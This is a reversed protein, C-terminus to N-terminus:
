SETNGIHEVHLSVGIMKDDEENVVYRSDVKYPLVALIHSESVVVPTISKEINALKLDGFLKKLKKRRGDMGPPFFFDGPLWTRVMLPFTCKQYSLFLTSDIESNIAKKDVEVFTISIGPSFEYTGFNHITIPSIITATQQALIIKKRSKEMIHTESYFLAGTSSEMLQCVQHFNFGFQSVYHFLLAHANTLHLGSDLHISLVPGRMSIYPTITKEVLEDLLDYTTSLNILTANIGQNTQPIMKELPPIISNRVLNRVYLNDENSSDEVYPIQHKSAYNFIDSKKWEILPRLINGQKWHLSTLGRLGTGRFANLLFTEKRDDLHHATLLYDLQRFSLLNNFILYRFNRAEQQFNGKSHIYNETHFIINNRKCFQSVFAKDHTSMGKRSAHDVHVVEVYINEAMLLHLLVMSDIGGSM